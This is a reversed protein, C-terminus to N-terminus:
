KKKRKQSYQWTQAYSLGEPLPFAKYPNDRFARLLECLLNDPLNASFCYKWILFNALQTGLSRNFQCNSKYSRNTYDVAGTKYFYGPAYQMVPIGRILCDVIITSNYALVFECTNLIGHGVKGIGCGYKNALQQWRPRENAGCPHEKLFLNKGYYKCAGEVFQYYEEPTGVVWVSRDRPRQLALVPGAWEIDPKKQGYKTDPVNARQLISAASDRANYHRWEYTGPKTNFISKHYLGYTDIHLSHYFFGSECFAERGPFKKEGGWSIALEHPTKMEAFHHKRIKLCLANYVEGARKFRADLTAEIAIPRSAM